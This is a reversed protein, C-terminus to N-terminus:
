KLYPNWNENLYTRGELYLILAYSSQPLDSRLPCQDMKEGPVEYVLEALFWLPQKCILYKLVVVEGMQPKGDDSRM